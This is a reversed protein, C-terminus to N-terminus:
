PQGGVGRRLRFATCKTSHRGSVKVYLVANAPKAQWGKMTEQLTTKDMEIGKITVKKSNICRNKVSFSNNEFTKL